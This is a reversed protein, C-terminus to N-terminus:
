MLHYSLSSLLASTFFDDHFTTRLASTTLLQVNYSQAKHAVGIIRRRALKVQNEEISGVSRLGECGRLESTTVFPESREGVLQPEEVQRRQKRRQRNRACSRRPPRKTESCKLARCQPRAKRTILDAYHRIATHAVLVSVSKSAEKLNKERAKDRQNGRTMKECYKHSLHVFHLSM